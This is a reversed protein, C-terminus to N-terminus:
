WVPSRIKTPEAIVNTNTTTVLGTTGKAINVTRKPPKVLKCLGRVQSAVRSFGTIIALADVISVQVSLFGSMTIPIVTVKTAATNNSM